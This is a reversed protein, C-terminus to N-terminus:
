NWCLCWFGFVGVFGFSHPQNLLKKKKRPPPNTTCHTRKTRPGMGAKEMHKKTELQVVLMKLTNKQSKTSVLARWTNKPNKTSFWSKGRTKQNKTPSGVNEMHKETKPQFVTKGHTPKTKPQFVTKGHTPKTKPQFVNKEMHQNLKRTSFWSKEPKKQKQNLFRRKGHSFNTHSWFVLVVCRLM